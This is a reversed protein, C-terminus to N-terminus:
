HGPLYGGFRTQPWGAKSVLYDRSRHVLQSVRNLDVGVLKGQWKRVKGAIFVTDINSTDMGLVIAGYVNNVPMVNIQDMRLLIIDAEKGPTLTGIKRDLGNDKAGEITAFEIVERVKLLNPLNTEGARQRALLLMRQLTFVARMQAFFDSPIETEVDASLSPRIGHDLAQQIPPVGHGMEMEIPCAISVNGGTNVIMQWETETLNPCHIYTVDQGMAEAVPLLQNTGNVHVTIPAGVERAVAWHEPNIGAAMALTLLQDASSFHQVRLRRIDQPFQNQPGATGSGFGYVGRIGSERLGEIAADTHEPSNGIHSWDLLTTIGANIAGLASVLDGIYADEPRYIARAAGTIDRQYDSLLGDPLINRLPGEWIHRHTDVFGPMVVMKSADIVAASAKLNPQVAVIKSGEILVDAQEFDGVNPDLSLVCGGKLLIRRGRIGGPSSGKGKLDAALATGALTGSAMAGAVFGAASLTFFQRRSMGGDSSMDADYEYLAANQTDPTRPTSIHKGM